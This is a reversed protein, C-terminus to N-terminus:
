WTVLFGHIAYNSDFYSGTITGAANNTLPMTGQGSGTGADAVGFRKVGGGWARRFGRNEGYTNVYNGVIVGHVNIGEPETGQGSHRGAGRVDFVRFSGDKNRLYGHMVGYSDVFAATVQMDDNISWSYTGQGAAVGAGPADFTTVTGDLLRLFGHAVNNADVYYGTISGNQSLCSAWGIFTGQGAGTGAGPADFKTLGGTPPLLFVHSLNNNDVYAGAIAGKNNINGPNTGQGAGTGAGPIRFETLIGDPTRIFGHMVNMIDVYLGAITGTDNMATAYTGQGGLVGMPTPLFGAVSQTGADPADFLTITGDPARVFSHYVFLPDSYFGAIAGQSNIALSQAGQYPSWGGPSPAPDFTTIKYKDAAMAQPWAVLVFCALLVLMLFSIRKM